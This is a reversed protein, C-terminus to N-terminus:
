VCLSVVEEVWSAGLPEPSGRLPAGSLLAEVLYRNEPKDDVSLIRM